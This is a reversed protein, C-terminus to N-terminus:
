TNKLISSPSSFITRNQLITSYCACGQAQQLHFLPIQLSHGDSNSNYYRCDASEVAKRGKGLTNSPNEKVLCFM